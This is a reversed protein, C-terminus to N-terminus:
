WWRKAERILKYAVYAVKQENMCGLTALLEEVDNLWNEVCIHDGRGEFNELHHSCFDKLSCGTGEAPQQAVRDRHLISVLQGIADMVQSGLLTVEDIPIDVPKPHVSIIHIV